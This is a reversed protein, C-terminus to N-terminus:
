DVPLLNKISAESVDETKNEPIYKFKCFSDVINNFVAYNEDFTKIDSILEIGVICTDNGQCGYMMYESRMEMKNFETEYSFKETYKKLSYIKYSYNKMCGDKILQKKRKEFERKMPQYTYIDLFSGPIVNDFSPTENLASASISPVPKDSIICIMGNTNNNFFMIRIQSRKDEDLMNEVWAPIKETQLWGDPTEISFGYRPNTYRGNSIEPPPFSACSTLFLCVTLIILVKKM